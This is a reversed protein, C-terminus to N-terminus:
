DLGNSTVINGYGLEPLLALFGGKRLLSSACMLHSFFFPMIATMSWILATYSYWTALQEKSRFTYTDTESSALLRTKQIASAEVNTGTFDLSCDTESNLFKIHLYYSM